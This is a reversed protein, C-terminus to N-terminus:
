VAAAKVLQFSTPMPLLPMGINARLKNTNMARVQANTMRSRKVALYKTGAITITNGQTKFKPNISQM